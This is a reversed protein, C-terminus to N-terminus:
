TIKAILHDLIPALPGYQHDTLRRSKWSRSREPVIIYSM